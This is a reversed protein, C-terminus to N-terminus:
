NSPDHCLPPLLLVVQLQQNQGEEMHIRPILSLDKPKAVLLKEWLAM